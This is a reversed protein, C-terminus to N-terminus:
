LSGNWGSQALYFKANWTVMFIYDQSYNNPTIRIPEKLGVVEVLLFFPNFRHDAYNINIFTQRPCM